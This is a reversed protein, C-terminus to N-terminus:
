SRCDNIANAFVKQLDKDSQYMELLLLFSGVCFGLPGYFSCDLTDAITVQRFKVEMLSLGGCATALAFKKLSTTSESTLAGALEVASAVLLCWQLSRHDASISIM